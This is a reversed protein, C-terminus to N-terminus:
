SERETEINDLQDKAQGAEDALRQLENGVKGLGKYYNVTALVTGVCLGAVTLAAGGIVKNLKNM